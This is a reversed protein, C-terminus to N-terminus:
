MGAKEEAAKTRTLPSLTTPGAHPSPGDFLCSYAWNCIIMGQHIEFRVNSNFPKTAPTIRSQAVLDECCREM